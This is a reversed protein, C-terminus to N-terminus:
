TVEAPKRSRRMQNLVDVYKLVSYIGVISKHNRWNGEDIESTITDITPRVNGKQLSDTHRTVFQHLYAYYDELNRLGRLSYLISKDDREAAVAGLINGLNRAANLIHSDLELVEGEYISTLKYYSIVEFDSLNGKESLIRRFLFEEIVDAIESSTLFRHALEERMVTDVKGGHHFFFNRMVDELANHSKGIVSQWKMLALFSLIQPLNPVTYYRTFSVKQGDLRVSFVHATVGQLDNEGIQTRKDYIALLFGVLNELPHKVHRLAAKFNAYPKDSAYCQGFWREIRFRRLLDTADFFFANLTNEKWDINFLVRPTTFWSAFTCSSCIHISGRFQSYFSSMKDSKVLFPHESTRAETVKLDTRGCFDCAGRSGKRELADPSKLLMKPGGIQQKFFFSAVGSWWMKGTRTHQWTRVSLNEICDDLLARIRVPSGKLILSDPSLVATVKDAPDKKRTERQVQKDRLRPSVDPNARFIQWLAMIGNDIWPEGTRVFELQKM